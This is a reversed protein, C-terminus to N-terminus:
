TIPCRITVSTPNTGSVCVSIDLNTTFRTSVNQYGMPSEEPKNMNWCNRGPINTSGTLSMAASADEAYCDYPVVGVNVKAVGGQVSILHGYLVGLLFTYVKADSNLGEAREFLPSLSENKPKFM